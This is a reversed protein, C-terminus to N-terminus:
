RPPLDRPREIALEVAKEIWELSIADLLSLSRILTVPLGSGQGHGGLLTVPQEGLAAAIAEISDLSPSGEGREIRRIWEESLNAAEALQAQSLHRERRISKVQRGFMKALQGM